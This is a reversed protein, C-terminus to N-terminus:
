DIVTVTDPVEVDPPEVRIDDPVEIDPAEPQEIRIDTEFEEDAAGTPGFVGAFYLVAGLILIVIIILIAYVGANGDDRPPPPPEEHRHHEVEAM